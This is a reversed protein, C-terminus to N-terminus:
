FKEHETQSIEPREVTGTHDCCFGEKKLALPNGCDCNGGGSPFKKFRHGKHNSKEFCENCLVAADHIFCEYCKYVPTSQNLVKNCLPVKTKRPQFPLFKEIEIPTNDCNFFHRYLKQLEEPYNELQSNSIIQPTPYHSKPNEIPRYRNNLLM